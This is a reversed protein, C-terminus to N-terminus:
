FKDPNEISNQVAMATTTVPTVGLPYNCHGHRQVHFSSMQSLGPNLNVFEIHCGYKLTASVCLLQETMRDDAFLSNVEVVLVSSLYM